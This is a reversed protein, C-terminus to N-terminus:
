LRRFRRLNSAPFPARSRRWPNTCRSRLAPGSFRRVPQAGMFVLPRLHKRRPEDRIPQPQRVVLTEAIVLHVDKLPPPMQARVILVLGLGCRSLESATNAPCLKLGDLQIAPVILQTPENISREILLLHGLPSEVAGNRGRHSEHELFNVVRYCTAALARGSLAALGAALR